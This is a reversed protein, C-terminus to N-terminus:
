MERVGIVAMLRGTRSGERRYSFLLDTRCATCLDSAIINSAAVGADCLQWRNATVLDLRARALPPHHGPPMMSLWQLPNPEEGTAFPDFWEPAQAFQSAYAQVVEPGVEYCCRRIAPGLVAVVNAPHTGFAMRMRGLTKAVMRRLTGRWGAHVAAIARRRTDVLLIPVCDATQVALLIGPARTIAADGRLAKAPSSDLAFIVDSHFQRLTVLTMHKARLAFLLRARNAVVNERADWSTFGLNFSRRGDLTSEGGRRTSFGHVLWPLKDLARVQLIQVEGSRLTSWSADHPEARSSPVRGARQRQTLAKM